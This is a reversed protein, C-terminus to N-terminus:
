KKKRPDFVPPVNWPPQHPSDCMGFWHLSHDDTMRFHISIPPFYFMFSDSSVVQKGNWKKALPAWGRDLDSAQWERGIWGITRSLSGFFISSSRCKELPISLSGCVGYNSLSTVCPFLKFTTHKDIM